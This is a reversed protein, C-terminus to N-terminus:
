QRQCFVTGACGTITYCSSDGVYCHDIQADGDNCRVLFACAGNYQPRCYEVTPMLCANVNEYAFCLHNTVENQDCPLNSLENPNCSDVRNAMVTPMPVPDGAQGMMEAGVCEDKTQCYITSGCLSVPACNSLGDCSPVEQESSQCSPYANCNVPAQHCYFLDSGMCNNPVILAGCLNQSIEADTCPESNLLGQDCDALVPVNEPAQANTCATGSTQCYITGVCSNLTYCNEQGLHCASIQEEGAQCRLDIACDGMFVPRCFEIQEGFCPHVSQYIFCGDNDVESVECQYSSLNAPDCQGIVNITQLDAWPPPPAAEAQGLDIPAGSSSDSSSGSSSGPLADNTSDPSADGQDQAVVYGVCEPKIQCFITSGCISNQYCESLGDCSPVEISYADCVPYADCQINSKQCFIDQHGCIGTQTRCDSLGECTAVEIEDANCEPAIVYIDSCDFQDTDGGTKMDIIMDGNSGVGQDTKVDEEVICATMMLVVSILLSLKKM